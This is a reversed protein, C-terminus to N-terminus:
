AAAPTGSVDAGRVGSRDLERVIAASRSDLWLWAPAVPEGERDVLWTGDGQGTIALALVRRRSIRCPRALDRLVAAADDWTRAMDQEVGGGPCTSM